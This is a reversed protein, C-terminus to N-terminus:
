EPLTLIAGVGAQDFRAGFRKLFEAFGPESTCHGPAVREVKFTEHLTSAVRAVDAPPAGVLHFGGADAVVLVHQELEIDLVGAVVLDLEDAVAIPRDGQAPAITRQLHM